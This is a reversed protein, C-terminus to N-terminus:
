DKNLKPRGKVGCVYHQEAPYVNGQFQIHYVGTKARTVQLGVREFLARLKRMTFMNKHVDWENVNGAFSHGHLAPSPNDSLVERAAWEWSPVLVHVMGDVKVADAWGQLVNEADWYSFHELVHSAFLGDFKEKYEELHAADGLIDPNTTPDIDLTVIKVDKYEPIMHAQAKTNAGIELIVTNTDM